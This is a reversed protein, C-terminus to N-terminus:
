VASMAILAACFRGGTILVSCVFSAGVVRRPQEVHAHRREVHELTSSL